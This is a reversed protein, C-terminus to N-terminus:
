CTPRLNLESGSLPKGIVQLDSSLPNVVRKYWSPAWTGAHIECRLTCITEAIQSWGLQPGSPLSLSAFWFCKALLRPKHAEVQLQSLEYSPAGGDLVEWVKRRGPRRRQLGASRGLRCPFQSRGRWKKSLVTAYAIGKVSVEGPITHANM